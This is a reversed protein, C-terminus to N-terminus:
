DCPIPDPCPGSAPRPFTQRCYQIGDFTNTALFDVPTGQWGREIGNAASKTMITNTVFPSTPQGYIQIAAENSSPDASPPTGCSFNRTGTDGGAFEVRAFNIKTRPDPVGRLMIGLWDGPAPAAENSTFVVPKDATGLVQLAGTSPADTSSRQIHLGSSAHKSFKITVGAEITLMAVTTTTGVVSIEPFQGDGGPVYPVGRDHMTVDAVILDSYLRIGDIANGTYKGTPITGMAATSVRMPTNGSGEIVLDRSTSAFGAKTELIVGYKPAGQITVHDVTAIEQLPQTGDGLLHLAGGGRSAAPDGGDKIVVYALDAKGPPNVLIGGWKGSQGEFLIPKDALGKAVLNGKDSTSFGVNLGRSGIVRVIACPEITLTAGSRISVDFDVNHYGPGWTEDATINGTHTKIGPPPAPCRNVIGGDTPGVTDPAPECALFMPLGCLLLAYTRMRDLTRGGIGTTVWVNESM